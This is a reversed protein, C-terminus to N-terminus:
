QDKERQALLADAIRYAQRAVIEEKRIGGRDGFWARLDHESASGSCLTPNGLTAAAFYDRLKMGEHGCQEPNGTPFAQGGDKQEPVWGM